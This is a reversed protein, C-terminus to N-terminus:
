ASTAGFLPNSSADYVVFSRGSALLVNIPGSTSGLGFGPAKLTVGNTNGGSLIVGNDADIEFLGGAGAAGHVTINSDHQATGVIAGTSANLNLQGITNLNLSTSGTSTVSQWNNSLSFDGINASLDLSAAGGTDVSYSNGGCTTSFAGHGTLVLGQNLSDVNTGWHLFGTTSTSSSEGLFPAFTVRASSGATLTSGLPFTGVEV